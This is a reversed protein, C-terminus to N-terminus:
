AAEKAPFCIAADIADALCNNPGIHFKAFADHDWRGVAKDTDTVFQRGVLYVDEGAKTSAYMEVITRMVGGTPLQSMPTNMTYGDPRM